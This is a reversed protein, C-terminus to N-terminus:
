LGPSEQIWTKRRTLMDQVSQDTWLSKMDDKCSAIVNTIEDGDGKGRRASDPGIEARFPRANRFKELASKWGNNSNISFEQLAKRQVTSEFPAATFVTTTYLEQSASGLREELDAQIKRLPALRLKLLRHKEGFKLTHKAARVGTGESDEDSATPSSSLERSILELIDNVNRVLNMQIVCRWSAREESWENSAYTLQFDAFLAILLHICMSLCLVIVRSLRQSEQLMSLITYTVIPSLAFLKRSTGSESQGLLLVKIPRKRRKLAVREKNLQEDIEDSIRRAEREAAERAQREEPTENSPPAIALTLPDEELSRGM